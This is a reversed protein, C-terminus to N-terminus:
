TRGNRQFPHHLDECLCTHRFYRRGSGILLAMVGLGGLATVGAYNKDLLSNIAFGIFLPFLLDLISETVVLFTTLSIKKWFRRFLRLLPFNQPNKSIQAQM